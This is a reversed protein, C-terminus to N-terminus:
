EALSELDSALEQWLNLLEQWAARSEAAHTEAADGPVKNMGEECERTGEALEQRLKQVETTRLGDRLEDAGALAT